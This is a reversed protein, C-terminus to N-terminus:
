SVIRWTAHTSNAVVEGQILLDRDNADDYAFCV